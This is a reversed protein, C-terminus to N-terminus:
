QFQQLLDMDYTDDIRVYAYKKFIEAGLKRKEFMASMGLYCNSYGATRAYLLTQFLLQRYLLLRETGMEDMGILIPNYSNNTKNIFCFVAGLIENHQKDRLLLFEWLGNENMASFLSKDYTFNNIAKNNKKVNLYLRYVWELEEYNLQQKVEVEYKDTYPLVDKRFHRKARKALISEFDPLGTWSFDKFVATEPMEVEIFGKNMIGSSLDTSKEFDRLVLKTAKSETYQEELLELLVATNNEVDEHDLYVHVGETFTCGTSLTYSTLFSANDRRLTEIKESVRESALLDEKWLALSTHTLAKLNGESDTVKYYKFEMHNPDEEPLGSFYDEVFCMGDYDLAQETGLMNNWLDRDIEKLSTYVEKQFAHPIKQEAEDKVCFGFAKYVKNLNNSTEALAHPMHYELARVLQEIQTHSNHNSVTIRLGANKPPVAPFIGPNVFFGEEFMRNVMSYATDPAATGIYFVPTNGHSLVPLEAQKLLRDMLAIRERLQRQKEYIEDHLHIHASALAAAVSAPELQASFTLPGGFNRIQQQLQKDGCLITAGSAGFTKSLTSILIINSPLEEWHGKIFGCGHIGTWSMGHVDDFYVHLLPYKEMLAKLEAVPAKDGYMSYIGDAMYWIKRYKNGFKKLHDELQQMNNHRIMHVPIGKSKLISCANYVSWHVQHDLIVVEKDAVAQPIVAMHALTSNKAILVPHRYVQEMKEELAAYLPHSLYTKSLPFQTGYRFVAEAAAQKLRLDQELGLYGTTAFHWLKRGRVTVADGKLEEGEAYLHVTNRIKANEIFSNITDYQNPHNIKAM